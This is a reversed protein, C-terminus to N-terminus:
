LSKICDDIIEAFRRLGILQNMYSDRLPYKYWKIAFGSPKHLFNPKVLMCDDSHYNEVCWKKFRDDYGCDCRVAYGHWWNEATTNFGHKIYLPKIIEEIFRDHDRRCYEYGSIKEYDIQYCSDSHSNKKLWENEREDYGCNCEGWYYPMLKFTDNEFELEYFYHDPDIADLLRNIEAEWAERDPIEYEGRSCGFVANGLEM